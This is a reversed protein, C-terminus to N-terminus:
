RARTLGSTVCRAGRVACGVYDDPDLISKPLDRVVRLPKSVVM